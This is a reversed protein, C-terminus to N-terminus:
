RLCCYVSFHMCIASCRVEDPTVGLHIEFVEQTIDELDDQHFVEPIGLNPIEIQIQALIHLRILRCKM